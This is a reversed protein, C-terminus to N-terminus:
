LLHQLAVTCAFELAHSTLTSASVAVHLQLCILLPPAPAHIGLLVRTGGRISGCGVALSWPPVECRMMCPQSGCSDRAAEEGQLYNEGDKGSRGGQHRQPKGGAQQWDAEETWGQPNPKFGEENM